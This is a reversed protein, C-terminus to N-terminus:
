RPISRSCRRDAPDLDLIGELAGAVDALGPRDAPLPRLCALILRDLRPEAGTRGGTLEAERELQPYHGAWSGSSDSGSESLDGEIEPDDFPPHGCRCEFLVAGLGWVDAEPGLTEGRAQEPSMYSWTGLGPRAPGPRRALGLDILKARGAEGIVNSSKLDLHLYGERHLYALASALQLGLHATEDADLSGAEDISHALTEGGLTEMVLHPVPRSEVEYGRLLHPHSLRVLLRGEEALQDLTRRDELRDERPLKVVVRSVRYRDWCDWVEFARSRSLRGIRELHDPWARAATTM